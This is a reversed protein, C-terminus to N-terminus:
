AASLDRAQEIWKERAVRGRFEIKDEILAIDAPTWAAIQAFATVGLANLVAAIKPGIGKIKLLDDRAAPTAAAAAKRKAPPRAAAPASAFPLLAPEPATAPRAAQAGPQRERRADPAPKPAAATDAATRAVPWGFLALSLAPAPNGGPQATGGPWFPGSWLKLYPEWAAFLMRNFTMAAEGLSEMNLWIEDDIWRITGLGEQVPPLISRSYWM